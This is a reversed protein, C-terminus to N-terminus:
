SNYFANVYGYVKTNYNELVPMGGFYRSSDYLKMDNKCYWVNKTGDKGNVNLTKLELVGFHFVQGDSQICNVYIPQPM